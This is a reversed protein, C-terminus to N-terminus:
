IAGTDLSVAALASRLTVRGTNFGAQDGTSLSAAMAILASDARALDQQLRTDKASLSDPAASAVVASQLAAVEGDSIDVM